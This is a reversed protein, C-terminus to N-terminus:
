VATCGMAYVCKGTDWSIADYAPASKFPFHVGDTVGICTPFNKAYKFWMKIECKRQGVDMTFMTKYTSIGKSGLRYLAVTLQVRVPVQPLLPNASQFVPHDQTIDLLIQSQTPTIRMIRKFAVADLAPLIEDRLMASSPLRPVLVFTADPM